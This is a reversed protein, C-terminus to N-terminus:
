GDFLARSSPAKVPRRETRQSMREQWMDDQRQQWERETLLRLLPRCNSDKINDTM